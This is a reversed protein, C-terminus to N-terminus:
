LELSSCSRLGQVHPSRFLWTYTRPKRPKRSSSMSLPRSHTATTWRTSALRGQWLHGSWGERRNIQTTYRRHAEGIAQRLADPSGPVAILHVHSPMLCYAWVDVGNRDCWESMFAIYLLYDDTCFFTQQRRNGTPHYLPSSRAPWAPWPSHTGLWESASPRALPPRAMELSALAPVSNRITDGSKRPHRLARSRQM